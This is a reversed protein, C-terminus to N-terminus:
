PAPINLKQGVQLRTPVLGPNAAMLADLKIGYKRAIGYPSEGPQVTHTRAAVTPQRSGFGPKPQSSDSAAGPSPSETPQVPSQVQISSNTQTQFRGAIYAKLRDNEDQLRKNEAVLARVQVQLEPSGPLHLTTKALDQMCNTIWQNVIGANSAEPRLKLYREFHYIAAAPDPQKQAYLCALEFHAAASRPNVELAKDFEEVAGAYDMSSNCSKGALFHAENEDDMQSQGSPLCGNLSVCLLIALASPFVRAWITM